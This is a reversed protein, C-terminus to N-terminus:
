GLGLGLGQGLRELRRLALQRRRAPRLLRLPLLQERM